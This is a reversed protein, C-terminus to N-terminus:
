RELVLSFFILIYYASITVYIVHLTKFMGLLGVPFWCLLDTAAVLLLSRAIKFDNKRSSVKTKLARKSAMAESYILWQGLIIIITLIFNFGVFVCVSYIWGPSRQKTLPLALCVGSQSYFQHEFYSTLVVPVVSITISIIWAVCTLINARKQKIRFDGFPYKVVILRDLTILGILLLSQESSLSALVGAFTCLNNNRWSEDYLSYEGRYFMDASAIIILYLGMLLDSIALNSVFIGYGLKLKDRDYVLHYLLSLGNGLLAFVGVIWIFSRLVQNRMLDSCSSIENSRPFCNEEALIDPKICCLSFYDTVLLNVKELGKFMDVSFSEIKTGSMYLENVVLREFAGEEINRIVSQSLQLRDLSLSAFASQSLSDILLNKLEIGKLSYLGFFAETEITLLKLNGHLRLAKLRSQQAFVRSGVTELNNFSLDLTMLNKIPEILISSLNRVECASLNLYILYQIYQKDLSLYSLVDPRM